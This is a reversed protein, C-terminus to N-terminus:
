LAAGRRQPRQRTGFCVCRDCSVTRRCRVAHDCAGFVRGCGGGRTARATGRGRRGSSSRGPRSDVSSRQKRIRHAVFVAPAHRTCMIHWPPALARCRVDCSTARSTRMAAAGGRRGRRRPLCHWGGARAVAPRRRLGRSVQSGERERVRELKAARISVTCRGCHPRQVTGPGLLQSPRVRAHSPDCTPDTFFRSWIM